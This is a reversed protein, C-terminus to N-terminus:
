QEYEKLKKTLLEKIMQNTTIMAVITLKSQEFDQDCIIGEIDIKVGEEIKKNNFDIDSYNDHTINWIQLQDEGLEKAQAIKKLFSTM